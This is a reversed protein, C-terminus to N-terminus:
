NEDDEDRARYLRDLRDAVRNIERTADEVAKQARTAAIEAQEAAARARNAAAEAQAAKLEAQQAQSITQQDMETSRSCAPLVSCILVLLPLSSRLVAAIRYFAPQDSKSAGV